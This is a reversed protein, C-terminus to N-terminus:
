IDMNIHDLESFIVCVHGGRQSLTCLSPKLVWSGPLPRLHPDSPLMNLAKEIYLHVSITFILGVGVYLNFIESVLGQKLILTM